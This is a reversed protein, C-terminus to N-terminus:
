AGTELTQNSMDGLQANARSLDARTQSVDIQTRLVTTEITVTAHALFEQRLRFLDIRYDEVQGDVHGGINKLTRKGLSWLNIVLLSILFASVVYRSACGECIIRYIRCIQLRV